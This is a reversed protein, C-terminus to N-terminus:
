LRNLNFMTYRYIVCRSILHKNNNTKYKIVHNKDKRIYLGKYM